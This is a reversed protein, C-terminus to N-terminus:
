AAGPELVGMVSDQGMVIFMEGDLKFEQFGNRSFIVTDGVEVTMPIRPDTNNSELADIARQWHQLPIGRPGEAINPMAHFQDVLIALAGVVEKAAGSVKTPKGPGVAMVLGRYPTDHSEEVPPLLIGAHSRPQEEVIRRIVLLDNTPKLYKLIESM